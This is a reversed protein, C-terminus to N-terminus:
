GLPSEEEQDFPVGAPNLIAVVGALAELVAGVVAAERVNRITAVFEVHPGAADARIVVQLDKPVAPPETRIVASPM